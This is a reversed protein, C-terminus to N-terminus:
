AADGLVTSRLRDSWAWAAQRDTPAWSRGAWTPATGARRRCRRRRRQEPGRPCEGAVRPTPPPHVSTYIAGSAADARARSPSPWPGGGRGPAAPQEGLLEGPVVAEREVEVVGFEEIGITGALREEAPLDQAIEGGRETRPGFHDGAEVAVVPAAIRTEEVRELRDEAEAIAGFMREAHEAREDGLVPVAVELRELAGDEVDRSRDLVADLPALLMRGAATLHEEIPLPEVGRLAALHEVIAQQEMGIRGGPEPDLQLAVPEVM